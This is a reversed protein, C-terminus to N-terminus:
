VRQFAALHVCRDASVLAAATGDPSKWRLTQGLGPAPHHSPEHLALQDLLENLAMGSRVGFDAPGLAEAAYSRAVKPFLENFLTTSCFVDLGVLRGDVAFAAGVQTMERKLESILGELSGTVGEFYDAEAETSSTTGSSVFRTSIDDWVQGQNSAYSQSHRLSNTVSEVKRARGRAFHAHEAARVTSHRGWRGLELCSVPVTVRSNPPAIMSLNFTRNQKLGLIQEGDLLFIPDSGRNVLTVEGVVGEDSVENIEANGEALAQQLTRYFTGKPSGPSLIPWYTLRGIQQAELIELAELFQVIM